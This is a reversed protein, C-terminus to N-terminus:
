VVVCNQPGQSQTLSQIFLYFIDQDEYKIYDTFKKNLIANKGTLGLMKIFTKNVEVINNKTTLTVYGVPARDYHRYHIAAENRLAIETNQLEENQLELEIQCTDLEQLVKALESSHPTKDLSHANLIEEARQRLKSSKKSVM